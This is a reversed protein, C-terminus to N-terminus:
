QSEGEDRKSPAAEVQVGGGLQIRAGRSVLTEGPGIPTPADWSDRKSKAAQEPAGRLMIGAQRPTNILVVDQTLGTPSPRPQEPTELRPPEISAPVQVTSSKLDRPDLWASSEGPATPAILSFSQGQIELFRPDDSPMRPVSAFLNDFWNAVRKDFITTGFRSRTCEPQVCHDCCLEKFVELPAGKENCVKLLDSRAPM